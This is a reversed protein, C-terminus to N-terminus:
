INENTDIMNVYKMEVLIFKQDGLAKCSKLNKAWQQTSLLEESIYATSGAPVFSGDSLKAEVLVRLGFLESKQKVFAIGHRVEEKLGQGQQYPELILMDNFSLMGIKM